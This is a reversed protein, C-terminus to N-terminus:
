SSNALSAKDCNLVVSLRNISRGTTSKRVFLMVLSYVPVILSLALFYYINLPIRLLGFLYILVVFVCVGLGIVMAVREFLDDDSRRIFFTISYGLCAALLFFLLVSFLYM